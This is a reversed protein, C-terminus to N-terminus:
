EFIKEALMLDKINDIEMWKYQMDLTKFESIKLLDDIAVESWSNIDKKIYIYENTIDFLKRSTEEGFRYIDISVGYSDTKDIQKSIRTIIGENVVVKMSEENYSKPQCVILNSYKEEILVKIIEEEFFLDSNMMIFEQGYLYDRAINLSYMNNTSDYMDNYIIKINLDSYKENIHMELVNRKYGTVIYLENIGNEILNQIQKDIIAVGNVKVMCKPIDDTLPSLRSGLGAALILAKM